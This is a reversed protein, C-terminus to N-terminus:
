KRFYRRLPQLGILAMGLLSLTWAGDPVGQQNLSTGYQFTINSIDTETLDGLGNLVFTVSGEIVPDDTIHGNGWISGPGVITFDGGNIAAPGSVNPGGFNPASGFVGLGVSSIGENAGYALVNPGGDYRFEGGVQSTFAVTGLFSGSASASVPTLTPDGPLDFFIASLVNANHTVAASDSLTLTMTGGSISFTAVGGGLDNITLAQSSCLCGAAIAAAGVIKCVMYRMNRM